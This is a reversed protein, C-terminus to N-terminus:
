FFFHLQGLPICSLSNGRRTWSQRCRSCCKSCRGSRPTKKRWCNRLRRISNRRPDAPPCSNPNEGESKRPRWRQPWRPTPLPPPRPLSRCALWTKWANFEPFMLEKCYFLLRDKWANFKEHLLIGEHFPLIPGLM